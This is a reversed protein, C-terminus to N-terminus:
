GLRSIDRASILIILAVMVALGIMHVLGEKAPDVRRGRRVWEVALFALRGGDLAPLPLLNLLGLNASIVAALLLLTGSGTQSAQDIANGIGIPGMVTAGGSGHVLAWLALAWGVVVAGTQRLAQWLAQWWPLRESSMQPIIGILLGQSTRAPTVRVRYPRGDRVVTVVLGRVGAPGAGDRLIAEHLQEWTHVAHGDVAVVLDGPRLGAAAAPMGPEVAGLRMTPNLPLGVAGFVTAFLLFAVVFNAVPGAAIVAVRSGLPKSLFGAGRANAERSREAEASGDGEAPYMGAMRVYGLIPLLRLAYLTRGRRIGVLRPGFGLSFEEVEVGAARAAFFHGLEHLCILGGLVLVAPLWSV